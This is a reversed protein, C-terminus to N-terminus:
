PVAAPALENHLGELAEVALGGLDMTLTGGLLSRLM